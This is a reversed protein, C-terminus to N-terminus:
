ERLSTGHYEEAVLSWRFLYTSKDVIGCREFYDFGCWEYELLRGIPANFVCDVSLNPFSADFDSCSDVVIFWLFLFLINLCCITYFLQFLLNPRVARQTFSTSPSSSLERHLLNDFYMKLWLHFLSFAMYSFLLTIQSSCTVRMSSRLFTGM